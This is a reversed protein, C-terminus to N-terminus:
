KGGWWVFIKLSIKKIFYCFYKLTKKVMLLKAKNRINKRGGVKKLFFHNIKKGESNKFKKMNKKLDPYFFLPPLISFFDRFTLFFIIM